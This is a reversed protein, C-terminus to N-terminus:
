NVKRFEVVWVYPNNEWSDKGYVSEWLLAFNRRFVNYISSQYFWHFSGHNEVVGEAKAGEEAIDQLREARINVIELNIRSLYRSMHISPKWKTKKVQLDKYELIGPLENAKYYVADGLWFTERVWLRDGIKGFPCKSLNAVILPYDKIIRRTQTKRGELIAKVMETNFLIPKENM